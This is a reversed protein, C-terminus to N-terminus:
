GAIRRVLAQTSGRRPPRERHWRAHVELDVVWAGCETCGTGEPVEQHQAGAPEPLSKDSIPDVQNALGIWRAKWTGNIAATDVDCVRLFKHVFEWSPLKAGSLNRTITAPSYMLQRSLKRYPPDGALRRAWRLDTAFTILNEVFDDAPTHRKNVM